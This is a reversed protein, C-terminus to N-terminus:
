ASAPEESLALLADDVIEIELGKLESPLGATEFTVM